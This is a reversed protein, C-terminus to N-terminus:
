ATDLTRVGARLLAKAKDIHAEQADHCVESIVTAAAAAAMRPGCDGPSDGREEAHIRAGEQIVESLRANTVARLQPNLNLMRDHLRDPDSRQAVERRPDIRQAAGQFTRPSRGEGHGM